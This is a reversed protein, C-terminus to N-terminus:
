HSAWKAGPKAPIGRRVISDGHKRNCLALRVLQGPRGYGWRNEKILPAEVAEVCRICRALLEIGTNQCDIGVGVALSTEEWSHEADGAKV